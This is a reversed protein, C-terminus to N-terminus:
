TIYLYFINQMLYSTVYLGFILDIWDPLMKSCIDSELAMRMFQVFKDPSGEAWQPLEVDCIKKGNASRGLEFRNRNKLFSPDSYWEPTLEKVETPSTKSCM